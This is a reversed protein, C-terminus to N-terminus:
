EIKIRQIKGNLGNKRVYTVVVYEDEYSREFSRVIYEPAVRKVNVICFDENESGEPSAYVIIMFDAMVSYLKASSIEGNSGPRFNQGRSDEITQIIKGSGDLGQYFAIIGM